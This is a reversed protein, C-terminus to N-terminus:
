RRRSHRNLYYIVGIGISGSLLALAFALITHSM